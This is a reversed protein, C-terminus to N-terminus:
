RASHLMARLAFKAGTRRSRVKIAANHAAHWSLMLRRAWNARVRQPTGKRPPATGVACNLKVHARRMGARQRQRIGAHRMVRKNPKKNRPRNQVTRKIRLAVATGRQNRTTKKANQNLWNQNVGTSESRAAGRQANHSRTQACARATAAGATPANKGRGRLM